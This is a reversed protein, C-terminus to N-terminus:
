EKNAPAYRGPSLIHNPDLASKIKAVTNWYVSGPRNTLKPMAEVNIRYLPCGLQNGREWLAHYCRRAQEAEEPRKYIIPVVGIACKESTITFTMGRPFGYEALTSEMMAAMGLVTASKMPMVPAYWLIGVGDRAPDALSPKPMPVYKYAVRLADPRPIGNTVDMMYEARQVERLLEEKKKGPILAALKRLLANRRDNIFLMRSSSSSLTRRIEKRMTSIMSKRCHVVGIGIWDFDDIFGMGIRGFTSEVQARNFLKICGVPGRMDAFLTKCAALMDELGAKNKLTFLYVETHEARPALAIQLSTVVGMNAQAFLGDLYPGIAWKWVGAQPAGMETFCSQYIEGNALVARVSTVARFHDEEPAVGFGHELANGVVSTTPGAGTAPMYFNLKHTTLYDFLQQQTVGPELTVLGLEADFDIISNMRSLDLIACDDAVPLSSGYGWNRGTSITYLSIRHRNAIQVIAIVETENQPQLAALIHKSIGLCSQNYHAIANGVLVRGEPLAAQWEKLCVDIASDAIWTEQSPLTTDTSV